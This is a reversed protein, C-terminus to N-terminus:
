ALGPNRRFGDVCGANRSAFDPHRNASRSRGIVSRGRFTKL